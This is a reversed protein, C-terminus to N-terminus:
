LHVQSPSLAALTLGCDFKLPQVRTGAKVEHEGGYM